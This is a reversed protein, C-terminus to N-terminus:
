NFVLKHKGPIYNFSIPTLSPPRQISPKHYELCFIEGRLTAVVLKNSGNVCLDLLGYINSQRQLPVFQSEHFLIEPSQQPPTTETIGNDNPAVTVTAVQDIPIGQEPEMGISRYFRYEMGSRYLHM